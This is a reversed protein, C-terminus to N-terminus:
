MLLKTKMKLVGIALDKDKIGDKKDKDQITTLVDLNHSSFKTLNFGGEKYLEKVKGTIRITEEISFFSKLMDGIYFNKRLLTLYNCFRRRVM